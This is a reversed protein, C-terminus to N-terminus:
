HDELHRPQEGALLLRAEHAENRESRLLVTVVAEMVDSRVHEDVTEAGSTALPHGADIETSMIASPRGSLTPVDPIPWGTTARARNRFSRLASMSTTNLSNHSQESLPGKSRFPM